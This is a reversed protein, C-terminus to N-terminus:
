RSKSELWKYLDRLVNPQILGLETRWISPSYFHRLAPYTILEHTVHGQEDFKKKLALAQQVTTQTDDEGNLILINIPYPVKGIIDLTGSLNRHSRM